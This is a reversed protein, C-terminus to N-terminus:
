LNQDDVRGQAADADGRNDGPRYFDSPARARQALFSPMAAMNYYAAGPIQSTSTYVPHPPALFGMSPGGHRPGFINGDPPYSHPLFFRTATAHNLPYARGGGLNPLIWPQAVVRLQQSAPTPVPALQLQIPFLDGLSPYVLSPDTFFNNSSFFTKMGPGQASLPDPHLGFNQQSSHGQTTSSDLGNSGFAVSEQRTPAQSGSSSSQSPSSSAPGLTATNPAEDQVPDLNAIIKRSSSCSQSANAKAPSEPNSSLSQEKPMPTPILTAPDTSAYPPHGHVKQKHRTLSGASRFVVTCKM